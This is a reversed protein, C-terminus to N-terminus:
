GIDFMRQALSIARIMSFRPGASQGIKEFVRLHNQQKANFPEALGRVMPCSALWNASRALRHDNGCHCTGHQPQRLLELYPTLACAHRNQRGRPDSGRGAKGKFAMVFLRASPHQNATISVAPRKCFRASRIRPFSAWSQRAHDALFSGVAAAM